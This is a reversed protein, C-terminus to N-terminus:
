RRWACSAESPDVLTRLLELVPEPGARIKALQVVPDGAFLLDPFAQLRDELGSEALEISKALLLANRRIRQGLSRL